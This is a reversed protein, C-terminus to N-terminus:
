AYSGVIEQEVATLDAPTLYTNDEDILKTDNSYTNVKKSLVSQDINTAGTFREIESIWHGPDAILDEYNLHMVDEGVLLGKAILTYNKWIECFRNVEELDVILEMKRASRVCDELNRHLYIVKTGPLANQVARLNQAQWEPLKMGWVPRGKQEAFGGYNEALATVLKQYASLYSDIDPMLDPIWEDVNGDLVSQLQENRTYKTPLMFAEKDSLLNALTMFDNACNEGYILANSASSLLRQLLTTGTRRVASAICVPPNVIKSM